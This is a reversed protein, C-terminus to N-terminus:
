WVEESDQEEPWDAQMNALDEEMEREEEETMITPISQARAQMSVLEDVSVWEEPERAQPATIAAEIYALADDMHQRTSTNPEWDGVNVTFNPPAYAPHTRPRPTRISPRERPQETKRVSPSFIDVTAM